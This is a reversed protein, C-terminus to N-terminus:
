LHQEQPAPTPPVRAWRTLDAKANRQAIPDLCSGCIVLKGSDAHKCRLHGQQTLTVKYGLNSAFKMLTRRSSLRGM